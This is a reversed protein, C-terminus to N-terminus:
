VDVSRFVICGLHRLRHFGNRPELKILVAEYGMRQVALSAKVCMYDFEVGQGIRNPGSGLIIVREKKSPLYDSEEDYTSYYYPTQAIFEGACTDVM